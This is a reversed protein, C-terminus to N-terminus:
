QMELTVTTSLMHQQADQGADIGVLVHFGKCAHSGFEVGRRERRGRIAIGCPGHRQQAGLYVVQAVDDEFGYGIALVDHDDMQWAAFNNNVSQVDIVPSGDRQKHLPGYYKGTLQTNVVRSLTPLSDDFMSLSKNKCRKRSNGM